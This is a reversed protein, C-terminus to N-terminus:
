YYQAVSLGFPNFRNCFWLSRVCLKALTSTSDAWPPSHHTRLTASKLAKEIGALQVFEGEQSKATFACKLGIVCKDFNVDKLCHLLAATASLISASKRVAQM